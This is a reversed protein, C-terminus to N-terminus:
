VGEITGTYQAMVRISFYKNTNAYLQMNNIVFGNKILYERIHYLSLFDTHEAKVSCVFLDDSRGITVDEESTYGETMQCMAGRLKTELEKINM